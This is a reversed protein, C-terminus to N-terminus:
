WSLTSAVQQNCSRSYYAHDEMYKGTKDWGTHTATYDGAVRVIPMYYRSNYEDQKIQNGSNIGHDKDFLMEGHWFKYTDRRYMAMTTDIAGMFCPQNITPLTVTDRWYLAECEQIKRTFDNEYGFDVKLAMGIKPMPVADMTEKFRLIWHFPISPNLIIDPDSILFYDTDVEKLGPNLGEFLLNNKNRIIRHGAEELEALYAIMKPSTSANDCIILRYTDADTLKAIAEVMDRFQDPRDRTLILIPYKM